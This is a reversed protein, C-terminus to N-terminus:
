ARTLLAEGKESLWTDLTMLAPHLRRLAAIDANGTAHGEAVVEVLRRLLPSQELVADPFRAYSLKRGIAGGIKEAVEQGTLEDGALELTKGVHAARDVFVRAVLAGIDAGAIFQMTRGPELFFLFTGTAIGFHPAALLEMFAAPRVITAPLTSARVHEEIRWKSEFHGVGLNPALGAMSSYVFHQVGADRAADVVNKGFREEDADTVGYEPQGSSPQVSFVGYAGRVAGDISIRDSMDGPVLEVGARRLAEAKPSAPDRVLARVRFGHDLLARATAGGQQGTAGMVVITRDARTM